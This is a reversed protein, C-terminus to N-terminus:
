SMGWSSTKGATPLSYRAQESSVSCFCWIDPLAWHYDPDSDVSWYAAHGSREFPAWATKAYEPSSEAPRDLLPFRFRSHVRIGVFLRFLAGISVPKGELGLLNGNWVRYIRTWERNPIRFLTKCIGPKGAGVFAGSDAERRCALSM